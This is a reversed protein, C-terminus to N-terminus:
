SACTVVMLLVAQQCCYEYLLLSMSEEM